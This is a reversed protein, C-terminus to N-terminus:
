LGVVASNGGTGRGLVIKEWKRDMGADTQVYPVPGSM